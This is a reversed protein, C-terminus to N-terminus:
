RMVHANPAISVRRGHITLQGEAYLQLAHPLLRHEQELIRQSLTEETDDELIPVAAQLIIAGSDVQEDVFHVTCGAVKAGHELAQRQAHLGPFAPLLSPHINIVRHPFAHLLTPTIIRLYGALVVLEVGSDRLVNVLQADFAERNPFARPSLVVTPIGAAQARDLASAKERDSAVVAVTAALRHDAIADLIAQLNSGRGSALVGLRVVRSAHTGVTDSM